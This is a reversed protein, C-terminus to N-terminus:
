LDVALFERIDSSASGVIQIDRFQLRYKKDYIATLRPVVKIKQLLMFINPDALRPTDETISYAIRLFVTSIDYQACRRITDDHCRKAVCSM